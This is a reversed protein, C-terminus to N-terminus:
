YDNVKPAVEKSYGSVPAYGRKKFREALGDLDPSTHLLSPSSGRLQGGARLVKIFRQDRIRGSEEGSVPM